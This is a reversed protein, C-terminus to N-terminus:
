MMSQLAQACTCGPGQANVFYVALQVRDTNLQDLSAFKAKQPVKEIARELHYWEQEKRGIMLECRCAHLFGQFVELVRFPSGPYIRAGAIDGTGRLRRLFDNWVARGTGSEQECDISM